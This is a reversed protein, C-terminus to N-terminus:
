KMLYWGSEKIEEVSFDFLPRNDTKFQVYGDKQCYQTIGNWLNDQHLGDKPM